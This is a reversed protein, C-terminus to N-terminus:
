KMKELVLFYCHHIRAHQQKVKRTMRHKASLIFLDKLRFGEDSAWNIVNCHTCHMKHNHIIDQCKFVMIGKKKLVRAVECLTGRYHEELEPYAWYGSFRKAMVMSGNGKRGNRVYTIFPPDFVVSNLSDASLPIDTSSAEVVHPALPQKDFVFRPEPRNKWFGGNGFTLDCEFGEPCHLAQIADLIEDQSEYISKIVTM